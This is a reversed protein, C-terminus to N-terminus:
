ACIGTFRISESDLVNIISSNAPNTLIINGINDVTALYGSPTMNTDKILNISIPWNNISSLYINGSSDTTLVKGSNAISSNRYKLSAIYLSNYVFSGSTTIRVPEIKANSNSLGISFEGKTLNKNFNNSKGILSVYETVNGSSNNAEIDISGIISNNSISSKPKHYLTINSPYCNSTNELRISERCSSSVAHLTTISSSGSPINLGLKGDYSFYLNQNGSGIIKFDTLNKTNNLINSYNGSVALISAAFNENDSGLLLKNNLSYTNASKLNGSDNYQLSGSLGEPINQIQFNFSSNQSIAPTDNM